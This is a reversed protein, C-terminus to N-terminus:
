SMPSARPGITAPTRTAVTPYVRINWAMAATANAIATANATADFVPTRSWSPGRDHVVHLQRTGCGPPSTDGPCTARRACDGRRDPSGHRAGRRGAPTGSQDQGRSRRRDVPKMALARAHGARHFGYIQAIFPHNLTALTPAEREFRALRDPDRWFRTKSTYRVVSGVGPPRQRRQTEGGQGLLLLHM